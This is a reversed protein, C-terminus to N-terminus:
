QKAQIKKPKHPEAMFFFLVAGVMGYAISLYLWGSEVNLEALVSLMILLMNIGLITVVVADHKRGGRVARQYFHQSHAEWIKEKKWARMGLTITADMLYYAPLILAAYVYGNQATMFLLYALLFGIPISGVDGLFIKAPHWNWWLFGFGAGLVVLAHVSLANSFTGVIMTLVVLGGAISVMEAAAIGDIGDM